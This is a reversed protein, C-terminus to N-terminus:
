LKLIDLQNNTKWLTYQTGIKSTPINTLNSHPGLENGLNEKKM